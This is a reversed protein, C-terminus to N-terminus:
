KRDVTHNVPPLIATPLQGLAYPRVRGAHGPEDPWNLRIAEGRERAEDLLEAVTVAEGQGRFLHAARTDAWLGGAVRYRGAYAAAVRQRRRDRRVSAVYWWIAWALAVVLSVVAGLWVLVVDM